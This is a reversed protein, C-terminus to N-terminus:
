GHEALRRLGEALDVTSEYGLRERAISIDAVSDRVDGARESAYTIEPTVGLAGALHEVVERLNTQRGTGINMAIGEPDDEIAGALLTAHVANEIFTFDRTQRGDGFITVVEGARLTALFAAIAAAYPLNPDQRPGFINFYRLSITSPEYCRGWASVLAEGAAKSAAYPSECDIPDSERSPLNPAGGYVAASSAFVVRAVGADRAADLVRRTGDVNVRFCEVPQEVSLPVSVMAAEHFIVRCGHAADRLADDDLISARRFDVGDPVNAAHGTSLDDIVLVEAGLATLGRVLHSGIFGAGGTVLVRAGAYGNAEIAM